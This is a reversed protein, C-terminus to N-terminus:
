RVMESSEGAVALVTELCEIMNAPDALGKGAIDLASGHGVSAIPCCAKTFLVVGEGFMASKMAINGQDHYQFVVGGFEGKLARVFVTDPPYPGSVPIGKQQLCRIVPNLIREEEDGYLGGDGAHPNIGAVAITQPLQSFRQLMERLQLVTDEVTQPTIHDLIDRFRMHGTVSARLINGGRVVTRMEPANFYKKFLPLENEFRGDLNLAQKTIPAMILGDIEGAAAMQSGCILSDCTLRGSAESVEGPCIDGQAKINVKITNEPCTGGHKGYHECDGILVPTFNWVKAGLAKSVIEPGIGAQDGLVIGIKKM